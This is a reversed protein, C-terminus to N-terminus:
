EGDEEDLGREAFVALVQFQETRTLKRLASFEENGLKNNRICDWMYFITQMPYDGSDKDAYAELWELLKNQNDSLKFAEDFIVVETTEHIGLCIEDGSKVEYNANDEQWYAQKPYHDCTVVWVTKTMRNM